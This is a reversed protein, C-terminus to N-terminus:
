VTTLPPVGNGGEAVQALPPVGNGGEAVQALPPVGNGGEAVQALPPVGNGGEAVQALPPLGLGVGIREAVMQEQGVPLAAIQSTSHISAGGALSLALGLWLM